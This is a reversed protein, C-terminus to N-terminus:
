NAWIVFGAPQSFAFATQGANLTGNASWTQAEGYIYLSGTVGSMDVGGAPTEPNAGADNNWPGGNRRMWLLKAGVDVAVCVVDGDVLGGAHTVGMNTGNWRMQGNASNHCINHLGAGGAGFSLNQSANCLGIGIQHETGGYLWELYYKGTAKLVVSRTSGFDIESVNTITRNGNTLVLGYANTSDFTTPTGAVSGAAAVAVGDGYAVGFASIVGTAVPTITESVVGSWEGAQHGLRDIRARCYWTGVSLPAPITFNAEEAADELADITDSVEFFDPGIFTNVKDFQVVPIDGVTIEDHACNIEPTADTSASFWTLAPAELGASLAPAPVYLAAYNQFRRSRFLANM